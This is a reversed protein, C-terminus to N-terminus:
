GKIKRRKNKPGAAAGEEEDNDHKSKGTTAAATKAKGQHNGVALKGGGVAAEVPSLYAEDILFEDELSDAM